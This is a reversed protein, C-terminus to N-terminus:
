AKTDFTYCRYLIDEEKSLLKDIPTRKKKMEEFEYSLGYGMELLADTLQNIHASLLELAEKQEMSLTAHVTKNQLRLHIDMDGLHAMTLHLLIHLNEEGERKHKRKTYFFLESNALNKTLKVPLQIYGLFQNVSRMFEVQDRLNLTQEKAHHFAESNASEENKEFFTLLSELDQSLKRYFQPPGDKKTFDNIELTLKSLLESKLLKQYVPSKILERLASSRSDPQLFATKQSEERKILIKTEADMIKHLLKAISDTDEPYSAITDKPLVKSLLPFLSEQEDRSLIDQLLIVNTSIDPAKTFIQNLIPSDMRNLNSERIAQNIIERFEAVTISPEALLKLVQEPTDATTLAHTLQQIEEKSFHASLPPSELTSYKPILYEKAENIFHSLLGQHFEESIASEESLLQLFSDIMNQSHTLISHNNNQYTEIQRIAQPTIPLELKKMLVLTEISTNRFVASLKLIDLISNKNISLEQQLLERVIQLNRETKPLAAETLAKEITSNSDYSINQSSTTESLNNPATSTGAKGNTEEMPTKSATLTTSQSVGLYNSSTISEM